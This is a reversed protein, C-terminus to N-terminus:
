AGTILIVEEGDKVITTYKWMQSDNMRNTIGRIQNPEPSAAGWGPALRQETEM